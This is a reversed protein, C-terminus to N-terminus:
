HDVVLMDRSDNTDEEIFAQLEIHDGVINVNVAAITHLLGSTRELHRRANETRQFLARLNRQMATAKDLEDKELVIKEHTSINPM